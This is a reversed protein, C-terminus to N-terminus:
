PKEARVFLELPYEKLMKLGAIVCPLAVIGIYKKM